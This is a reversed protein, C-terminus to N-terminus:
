THIQLVNDVSHPGYSLLLRIFHRNGLAAMAQTSHRLRDAGQSLARRLRGIQHGKRVRLSHGGGWPQEHLRRRKGSADLQDFAGTPPEPRLVVRLLLEEIDTSQLAWM